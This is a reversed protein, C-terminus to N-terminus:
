SSKSDAAKLSVLIREAGSFPLRLKQTEAVYFDGTLGKQELLDLESAAHPGKMCVIRGDRALYSASLKIFQNIDTFARSTILTFKKGSLEQLEGTVELRKNLLQVGELELVRFVQKLFYCRNMRPEIFVTELQPCVAKLVLGPFGGGTGVDMVRERGLNEVDLFSLLTLSDLFHKELIQRDDMTRAVLNVKRNWKKLERFYRGLRDLANSQDPLQLGMLDLGRALFDEVDPPLM